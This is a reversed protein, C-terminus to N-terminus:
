FRVAMQLWYERGPRPYDEEYSPKEIGNFNTLPAAYVVDADFLNKIGARVVAGSMASNEFLHKMTLTLDLTQYGALDDRLDAQARSREGVYRYQGAISYQRDIRYMVGINALVSAVGAVPKSNNEDEAKQVTFNSELEFHKNFKRSYELETGVINVKGNNTYVNPSASTDIVILEKLAGYFLTVRGVSVGDNYIYGLGYNNITESQIDPNGVVVPNNKTSTELFTPPRFARAFQAKLTQEGTLQYVAAIRPSMANGVDDYSDYRLGATITLRDNYAYQDQVLVAWLRRALDEDLWNASGTYKALPLPTFNQPDYNRVAFVDGQKTYTWDMGFLVDHNEVGTFNLEFGAHYKREEHNPSAFVGDPFIGKFGPPYIQHLGSDLKYDLWGAKAEGNLDHGLSFKWGADVALMSVDRILSQGNGPLANALGFSDGSEVKSWQVSFSFNRFGTHLILSRDAEKENTEDPARSIGAMPTGALVDPGTEVGDGDINTASLSLSTYWDEGPKGRTLVGGLTKHGLDGHGLDGYRIFVKDQKKRTIVNVVGNYAFEGYITSGPGRIVEIRDIQEVPISLATSAVSLTSNFAVGNLMVKIKGSAFVSGIGRVFVQSTGDSAISLEIGPIQSLAEAVTRVGRDLLDGGYLVSVMGPVFDVNMKTRTAIKTEQELAGLLAQLADHAGPAEEDAASTMLPIFLLAGFIATRNRKIYGRFMSKM